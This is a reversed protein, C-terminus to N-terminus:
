FVGGGTNLFWSAYEDVTLDVIGKQNRTVFKRLVATPSSKTTGFELDLIDKSMTDPYEISIVGDENKVSLSSVLHVPWGADSAYSQLDDTLSGAVTSTVKDAILNLQANDAAM